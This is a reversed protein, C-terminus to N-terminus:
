CSEYSCEALSDETPDPGCISPGPDAPPSSGLFLYGFIRVADSLEVAANDDADAADYCSPAPGGTFLFNLISVGDSIDVAGDDTMDGRRFDVGGQSCTDEPVPANPLKPTPVDVIVFTGNPDGNPFLSLSQDPRIDTTPMGAMNEGPTFGCLDPPSGFDVGHILGFGNAEDDYLFIQDGDADLAFNAHFEPPDLLVLDPLLDADYNPDPCEWFCPPDLRGAIPCKSGDRDLWVIVYAGAPIVANDPFRWARPHFFSDSLYCGAIPVDVDSSNYLEIFDEDKHCCDEDESVDCGNPQQECRRHEESPDLLTHTQTPVVENIVIASKDGSPEHEVKYTWRVSCAIYRAGTVPEGAGGGNGNAVLFDDDDDDSDPENSSCTQDTMDRVCGHDDIDDDNVDGGGFERDCPGDGENYDETMRHCLRRPRTSSEGDSDEAHFYFEVRSGAAQGPISGNWHSFIDLPRGLDTADLLGDGSDKTTIITMLVVDEAGFDGGPPQVRYVIEVRDINEVTPPRDDRVRVTFEVAENASPANTSEAIRTLTPALNDSASPTRNRSGLCLRNPIQNLACVGASAICSGFSTRGSPYYVFFEFHDEPDLLAGGAGDPSRGWSVDIGLPPLYVRDVAERPGDPMGNTTPGWLTIVESGDSAIEFTAHPECFGEAVNGDCFITMRGGNPITSRGSPFTWIRAPDFVFTSSLAYSEHRLATGLVLGEGTDNYIEIMDPFGGQIDVPDQTANRAIVENILQASVPASVFTLVVAAVLMGCSLHSPRRDHCGTQAESNMNTKNELFSV